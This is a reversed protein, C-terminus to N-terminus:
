YGRSGSTQMQTKACSDSSSIKQIPESFCVESFPWRYANVWTLPKMGLLDRFRMKRNSNLFISLVYLYRRNTECASVSLVRRAAECCLLTLISHYVVKTSNESTSCASVTVAM